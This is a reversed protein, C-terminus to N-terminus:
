LHQPKEFYVAELNGNLYGTIDYEIDCDYGGSYYDYSSDYTIEVILYDTSPFVFKSLDDETHPIFRSQLFIKKFDFDQFVDVGSEDIENELHRDLTELDFYLYKENNEHNPNNFHGVFQHYYEAIVPSNHAEKNTNVTYRPLFKFVEEPNKHKQRLDYMFKESIEYLKVGLLCKITSRGEMIM